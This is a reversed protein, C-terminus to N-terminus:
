LSRLTHELSCQFRVGNLQREGIGSSQSLSCVRVDAGLWIDNLDYRRPFDLDYPSTLDVFVDARAYRVLRISM